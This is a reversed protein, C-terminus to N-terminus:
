KEEKPEVKFFNEIDIDENIKVLSTWTTSKIWLLLSKIYKFISDLKQVVNQM